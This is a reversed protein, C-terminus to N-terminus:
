CSVQRAHRTMSASVAASEGARAISRRSMLIYDFKSYGIMCTNISVVAPLSCPSKDLQSREVGVSSVLLERDVAAADVVNCAAPVSPWM